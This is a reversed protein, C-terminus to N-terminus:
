ENLIKKRWLEMNFIQFVLYSNKINDTFMFEELYEKLKKHNILDKSEFSSSLLTDNLMEKLTTKLWLTQPDAITRKNRRLFKELGKDKSIYKFIFRQQNNVYKYKSPISLSLEVIEHDLFPVRTETSNIMSARDVYRLSRPLKLYMLDNYQANRVHSKFKLDEFINQDFFNNNSDFEFLSKKSYNTGDITSFGPFLYQGLSGIIFNNSNLSKNNNVSSILKQFKNLLKKSDYKNLLDLLWPLVHYSYGSGLEDGGAGDLIVKCDNYKEYLYHNAVVRLSSFPEYESNLTKQLQNSLDKDKLIALYNKINAGRAIEQADKEESYEKNEYGFTYSNVNIKNRKCGAALVTSDIGGSLHLGVPVDSLKCHQNLSNDLYKKLKTSYNKFGLNSEDHYEEDIINKLNYYKKQYYGKNDIKIIHGPKVQFINKFWTQENSNILGNSLYIKAEDMNIRKAIENTKILGKIESCYYIHNKTKFYYLPKIGFRDRILYTIKKREDIIAISFMGKIKDLFNIGFKIYMQLLVEGDGKSKFKYNKFYTKKLELYNYIEGNFILSIKKDLSQIPQDSNKTLDIIALRVFGICNKKNIKKVIKQNPGRHIINNVLINTQRIHKDTISGNIGVIGSIGCM